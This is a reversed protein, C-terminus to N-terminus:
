NGGQLPGPDHQELHRLIALGHAKGFPPPIAEGIMSSIKTIGYDVPFKYSRPFGQLLKAEYLTIGRDQSPHLFRGKSPNHSSRTITPAVENWDMRGYVDRFGGPCKRHCALQMEEPLESRNRSIKRVRALVKETLQQRIRHLPLKHRDEPRPLGGIADAVTRKKEWPAPLPIKGFRSGLLIMRRRRQPVGYDQADLLGPTFEYDGSLRDMFKKLRWDELLAPVNEILVCKPFIELCLRLVEFILENREDRAVGGNRTRISSFGQCPPCAALLDLRGTGIGANEMLERGTLERVDGYTPVDPHNLSYTARAEERIEAAAVVKFGASALGQSLGGCGAFLDMALRDM